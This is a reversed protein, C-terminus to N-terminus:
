PTDAVRRGDALAALPTSVSGSFPGTSGRFRAAQDKLLDVARRYRAYLHQNGGGEGAVGYHGTPNQQEPFFSDEVRSAAGLTAADKALDGLTIQDVAPADPNIVDTPDFSGAEGIVEAVVSRIITRVQTVTPVTEDTFPQGNVRTPIEGKVDEPAPEWSVM